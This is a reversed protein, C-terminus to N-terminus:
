GTSEPQAQQKPVVGHVEPLLPRIELDTTALKAGAVEVARVGPKSALASLQDATGAVVVAFVCDCDTAYAHAEIASSRAFQAYLDKFSAEEKTTVTLTDVYGQYSKEAAKRIPVLAAYQKTLASLLDGKIDVPLQVAERGAARARLYVRTVTVGAFSTAAQAPTLYGTLSVLAVRAGKDKAAERLSVAASNQYANTNDGVDPGLSSRGALVIGGGDPTAILQDGAAQRANARNQTSTQDLVAVSAAFLLGAIAVFGLQPVERVLALPGKAAFRSDLTSLSTIELSAAARARRDVLGRVTRGIREAAQGVYKDDLDALKM